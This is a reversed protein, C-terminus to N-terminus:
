VGWRKVRVRGPDEGRAIADEVEAEAIEPTPAPETQRAAVDELEEGWLDAPARVAPDAAEAQAIEPTPAPTSQRARVIDWYPTLGYHGYVEAERSITLDDFVEYSPAARLEPTTYPLALRDDGAVRVDDVPVVTLRGGFWGTEIALYRVYGGEADVYLDEVAGIREGDATFVPLGRLRDVEPLSTEEPYGEPGIIGRHTHRTSM